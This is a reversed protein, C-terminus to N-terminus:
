APDVCQVELLRNGVALGNVNLMDGAYETQGAVCLRLVPGEVPWHTYGLIGLVTRSVGEQLLRTAEEARAPHVRLLLGWLIALLSCHWVQWWGALAKSRRYYALVLQVQGQHPAAM